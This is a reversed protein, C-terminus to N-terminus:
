FRVRELTYMEDLGFLFDDEDIIDAGMKEFLPEMRHDVFIYKLDSDTEVACCEPWIRTISDCENDILVQMFLDFKDHAKEDSECLIVIM